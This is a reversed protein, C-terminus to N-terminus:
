NGFTTAAVVVMAAAIHRSGDLPRVNMTSRTVCFIVPPVVV